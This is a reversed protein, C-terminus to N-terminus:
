KKKRDSPRSPESTKTAAKGDARATTARAGTDNGPLAAQLAKLREIAPGAAAVGAQRAQEFLREAEAHDGRLAAHNGRAYVAEPSQGAKQLYRGARNLDKWRMASNAANLNATEDDPFLRVAIEYVEDYEASGEPMTGAAAYMEGLSLKQPRTNLLRVIETVDSFARVEYTVAYDTHRLAPYLSTRMYAYDEPYTSKIKWERADPAFRPDAMIKLIAAKHPLGSSALLDRLGAWDEPEFATEVADAPFAYLSRVYAAVAATRQRALAVNGDYPGEPSAYGKFSVAIIRCDADADLPEITRHIKELEAKNDRFVPDIDTSNLAFGIHASGTERRLKRAEAVPTRYVFEPVFAEAKALTHLATVLLVRLEPTMPLAQVEHMLRTRVDDSLDLLAIAQALAQNEDSVGGVPIPVPVPVPIPAVINKGDKGDTSAASVAEPAEARAPRSVSSVSGPEPGSIAESEPVTPEPAHGEGIVHLAAALLDRMEPTLTLANLESSLNAQQEPNLALAIALGSALSLSEMGVAGDPPVVGELPFNEDGAQLVAAQMWPEFPVMVRYEIMLLGRNDYLQVDEKLDQWRLHRYYANRGALLVTPLTKEHGLTDVLRPTYAYERDSRLRVESVDLDAAVFLHGDACSFAVNSVGIHFGATVSDPLVRVSDPPVGLSDSVPIVSFPSEDAYAAVSDTLAPVVATDAAMGVKVTDAPTGVPAAQLGAAM